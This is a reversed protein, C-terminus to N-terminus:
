RINHEALFEEVNMVANYVDEDGEESVPITIITVREDEEEEDDDAFNERDSFTFYSRKDVALYQRHLLSSVVAPRCQVAGSQSHDCHYLDWDRHGTEVCKRGTPNNEVCTCSDVLLLM